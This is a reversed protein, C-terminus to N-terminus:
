VYPCAGMSVDHLTTESGQFQETGQSYIELEEGFKALWQDKVTKLLSGKWITPPWSWVIYEKGM